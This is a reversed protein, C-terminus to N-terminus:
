NDILRLYLSYIVEVQLNSDKQFLMLIAPYLLPSEGHEYSPFVHSRRGVGAVLAQLVFSRLYAASGMLVADWLM